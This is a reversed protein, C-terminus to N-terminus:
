RLFFSILTKQECPLDVGKKLGMKELSCLTVDPTVDSPFVLAASLAIRQHSKSRTHMVLLQVM